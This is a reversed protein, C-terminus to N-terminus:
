RGPRGATPALDLHLRNKGAKHESVPQLLLTVPLGIDIEAYETGDADAWRNVEDTGFAASWFRALKDPDACDVAVAIMTSPM